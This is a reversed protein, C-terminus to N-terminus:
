TLDGNWALNVSAAIQAKGVSGPDPNVGGVGNSYDRLLVDNGHFKEWWTSESDGSSPLGANIRDQSSGYATACGHALRWKRWLVFAAAVLIFTETSM